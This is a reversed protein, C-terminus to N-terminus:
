DVDVELEIRGSEGAPAAVVGEGRLSGLEGTGCGDVVGVSAELGSPGYSGAVRLVFTGTHGLVRGTIRDFGVYDARGDHRYAIYIVSASEGEIDGTLRQRYDVQTVRAAGPPPDLDKEAWDTVEFAATARETM